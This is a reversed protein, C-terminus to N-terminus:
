VRGTTPEIARLALHINDGHEAHELALLSGDRSLGVVHVPNPHQHILEAPADGRAVWVGFGDDNATGVAIIGESMSLGSSWADPVGEVDPTPVAPQFVGIGIPHDTVRRRVGRARDWAHVQYSGSENSLLVLRDPAEDAWDPFLVVPARFRREWARVDAERPAPEASM